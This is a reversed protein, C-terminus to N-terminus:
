EYYNIFDIFLMKIEKLEENSIIPELCLQTARVFKAWGNIH